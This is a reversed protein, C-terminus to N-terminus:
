KKNCTNSKKLDQIIHYKSNTTKIPHRCDEVYLTIVSRGIFPSNTYPQWISMDLMNGDNGCRTYYVITCQENHM